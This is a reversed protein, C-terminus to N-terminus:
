CLITVAKQQLPLRFTVKLVIPNIQLSQASSNLKTFFTSYKFFIKFKQNTFSLYILKPYYKFWTIYGTNKWFSLDSTYIGILLLGM